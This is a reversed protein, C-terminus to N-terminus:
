IAKVTITLKNVVLYSCCHNLRIIRRDRGVFVITTSCYYLIFEVRTLFSHKILRSTLKIFSVLM